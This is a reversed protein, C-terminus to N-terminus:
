SYNRLIYNKEAKLQIMKHVKGETLNRTSIFSSKLIHKFYFIFIIADINSLLMCKLYRYSSLILDIVCDSTFPKTYSFIFLKPFLLVCMRYKKDGCTEM